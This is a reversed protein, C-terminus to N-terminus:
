VISLRAIGSSFSFKETDHLGELFMSVYENSMLNFDMRVVLIKHVLM